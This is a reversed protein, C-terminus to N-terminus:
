ATLNRPASKLAPTAPIPTPSVFIGTRKFRNILGPLVISTKTTRSSSDQIPVPLNIDSLTQISSNQQQVSSHKSIDKSKKPRWSGKTLSKEAFFSTNHMENKVSARIRDPELYFDLKIHSPAKSVKSSFLGMHEKQNEKGTVPEPDPDAPIENVKLLLSKNSM